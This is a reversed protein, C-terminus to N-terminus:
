QSSRKNKHCDVHGWGHKKVYEIIFKHWASNPILYLDDIGCTDCPIKIGWEAKGDKRGLREGEEMGFSFADNYAKEFDICGKLLLETVIQSITKNTSEAIVEIKEKIETTTRFCILPHNQDYRIKSPSVKRVKKM